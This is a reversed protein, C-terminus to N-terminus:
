AGYKFGNQRWVEYVSIAVANSLNLCRVGDVMPLRVLNSAYDSMIHSPLGTNENGFVLAIDGILEEDYLSKTTKSSLFFFPCKLDQLAEELSDKLTISVESAYDLQARRLAKESFEFGLPKVLILEAGVV